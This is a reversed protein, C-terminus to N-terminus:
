LKIGSHMAVMGGSLNTYNVGEFGADIIMSKFTEQNPFKRISEILYQYSEKDNALLGGLQPIVYFSYLDYISSVVPIQVHSFEM